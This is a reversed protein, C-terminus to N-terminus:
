EGRCRHLAHFTRDALSGLRQHQSVVFAPYHRAPGNEIPVALLGYLATVDFVNAGYPTAEVRVTTWSWRVEFSEAGCVPCFLPSAVGAGYRDPEVSASEGGPLEDPAMEAVGLREAAM